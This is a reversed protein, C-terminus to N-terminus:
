AQAGAGNPKPMGAPKRGRKAKPKDETPVSGSVDILAQLVAGATKEEAKAEEWRAMADKIARGLKSPKAM